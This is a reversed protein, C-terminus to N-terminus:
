IVHTHGADPHTLFLLYHSKELGQLILIQKSTINSNAAISLYQLARILGLWSLHLIHSQNLLTGTLLQHEKTISHDPVLQLETALHKHTLM